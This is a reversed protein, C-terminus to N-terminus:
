RTIATFEPLERLNILDRDEKIWERVNKDTEVAKILYAMGKERMNQLSYACALNYYPDAYKPKLRAAKELYIVAKEYKGDHIYLVGIDNLSRIHGPDISLIKIYSTEAEKVKGQKFFSVAQEYMEKTQVAFSETKKSQPVTDQQKVPKVPEIEVVQEVKKVEKVQEAKEIRQEAAAAEKKEPVTKLAQIGQLTELQEEKEQEFLGNSKLYIASALVIIIILASYLIGKNFKQKGRESKGISQMYGKQNADKEKQAKKLAENIYSM